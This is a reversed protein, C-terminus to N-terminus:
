RRHLPPGRLLWGHLGPVVGDGAEARQRRQRRRSCYTHQGVASTHEGLRFRYHYWTDPELGSVDVHVSHGLAPTADADGQAVLAEFADDDCIEWRVSIEDDGMGGGGDAAEPDVALRTWLIVSDALPDGSAVGLTFPNTDLGSAPLEEPRLQEADPSGGEDGDSGDGSSCAAALGGAATAVVAALFRRRDLLHDFPDTGAM